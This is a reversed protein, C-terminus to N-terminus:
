PNAPLQQLALRIEGQSGRKIPKGGHMLEFCVVPSSTEACERSPISYLIVAHNPSCGGPQNLDM